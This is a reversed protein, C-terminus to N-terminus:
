PTVNVKFKFEVLNRNVDELFVAREILGVGAPGHANPDYTVEIDASEGAKVVLNARPVAGGHGPMGFPGKKGGDPNLITAITCMCSTYLSPITIDETSSNIVQFVTSVNGNKMSITGFDYFKESLILMNGTKTIDSNVTQAQPGSSASKGAFWLVGFILALILTWVVVQKTKM